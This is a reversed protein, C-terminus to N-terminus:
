EASSYEIRSHCRRYENLHQQKENGFASMHGDLDSKTCFVCPCFPCRYFGEESRREEMVVGVAM